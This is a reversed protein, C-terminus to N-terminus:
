LVAEMENMGGGCSANHMEIIMPYDGSFESMAVESSRPGKSMAKGFLERAEFGFFLIPKQDHDKTM